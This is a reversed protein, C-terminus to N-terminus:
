APVMLARVRELDELTDVSTKVGYRVDRPWLTATKVNRRLWSTVHERDYPTSASRNAWALASASFVEVDEGDIYGPTVNSAYECGRISHYLDLVERAVRPSLMPCDGTLRMVVDPQVLDTVRAFRKLVDDEPIDHRSWVSVPAAASALAEADAPSPVAVVWDTVGVIQGARQVVHWLMPKGHIDALAKNPLRTSGLRAQIICLTKM